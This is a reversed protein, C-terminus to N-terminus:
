REFPQHRAVASVYLTNCLAWMLIGGPADLHRPALLRECDNDRAGIRAYGRLDDEVAPQSIDEDDAAGSMHQVVRYDAGDLVGCFVQVDRQNDDDAVAITPCDLSRYIGSQLGADDMLQKLIDSGGDLGCALLRAVQQIVGNALVGPQGDRAKSLGFGDQRMQGFLAM